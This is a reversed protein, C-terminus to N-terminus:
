DNHLQIVGLDSIKGVEVQIDNIVTDRYNTATDAFVTLDWLAPKLGPFLFMGNDEPLSILTDEGNIIQVYSVGVTDTRAPLAIGKITGGVAEAYTRIVPKLSYKGNGKRVVSRAADFDVVFSYALDPLLTEHLNFKLGSTQASPTSLDYSVSDVVVTNEDGLILRVQSIKGAPIEGGALLITEGNRLDLLNYIGPNPVDLDVWTVESSDIDDEVDFFDDAVGVRVGQVDINVADYNLAPADTLKLQITAKGDTFKENENMCSVASWLMLVSVLALSGNKLFRTKM